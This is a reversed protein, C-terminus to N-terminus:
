HADRKRDKAAKSNKVRSKGRPHLKFSFTCKRNDYTETGEIDTLNSYNRTAIRTKSMAM